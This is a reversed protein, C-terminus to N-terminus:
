VSLVSGVFVALPATHPFPRYVSVERSMFVGGHGSTANHTPMVPEEEGCTITHSNFIFSCVCAARSVHRDTLEDGWYMPFISLRGGRNHVGRVTLKKFQAAEAVWLWLTEGRVM